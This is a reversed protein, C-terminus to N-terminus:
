IENQNQKKWIECNYEYSVLLLSRDGCKLYQYIFTKYKKFIVCNVKIKSM